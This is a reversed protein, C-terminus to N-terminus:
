SKIIDSVKRPKLPARLFDLPYKKLYIKLFAWLEKLDQRGVDRSKCATYFALGFSVSFNIFGIALIGVIIVIIDLISFLGNSCYLAASFTGAAFTIHRIDFPLGTIAGIFTATGLFFGLSINGALSGANRNLYESIKLVRKMGLAKRLRKMERIREAIRSYIMRNDTYGAILGSAFLYIGTIAAFWLAGSKWPHQSNMVGFSQETGFLKYDFGWHLLWAFLFPLPFVIILNGIFSITQTHFVKAITLGLEPINAKHGESGFSKAITSATMAPQKTALTFHFSNILVFGIVYNISFAIAEWFVPLRAEHIWVKFFVLVSVILGAGAAAGLFTSYDRFNSAIYHEGTNSAHESIRLSLVKLNKKVFSNFGQTERQSILVKSAISTIAQDKSQNGEQLINLIEEIRQMMDLARSVSFLVNVNAGFKESALVVDKFHIKCQELNFRVQDKDNEIYIENNKLSILFKELSSQLSFFIEVHNDRSDRINMRNNIGISCVQLTLIRLSKTLQEKPLRVEKLQSCLENIHEPRLLRFWSIDGDVDFLKNLRLLFHNDGKLTPIISHRIRATLEQWFSPHDSIRANEITESFGELSLLTNLEFEVANRLHENNKLEHIFNEFLHDFNTHDSNLNERFFRAIESIVRYQASTYNTINSTTNAM